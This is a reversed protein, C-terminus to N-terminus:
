VGWLDNRGGTLSNKIQMRIRGATTGYGAFVMANRLCSNGTPIALRHMRGKNQRLRQPLWDPPLSTAQFTIQKTSYSAPAAGNRNELTHTTKFEIRLKWTDIRDRNLACLTSCPFFFAGKAFITFIAAGLLLKLQGSNYNSLQVSRAM